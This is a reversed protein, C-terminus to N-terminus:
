RAAECDPNSTTRALVDRVTTLLEARSLDDLEPYIPQQSASTTRDGDFRFGATAILAGTGPIRRAFLLFEASPALGTHFDRNAVRVTRGDFPKSGGRMFISITSGGAAPRGFPKLPDAVQFRWESYLTSADPSLRTDVGLLTGAAILDSRCVTNTLRGLPGAAFAPEALNNPDRLDIDGSGRALRRPILGPSRGTFAEAVAQSQDSQDSQDSLDSLDSQAPPTGARGPAGAGQGTPALVWAM